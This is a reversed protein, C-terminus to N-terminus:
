PRAPSPVQKNALSGDSLSPCRKKHILEDFVAPANYQIGDHNVYLCAPNTPDDQRPIYIWYDRVTGPFIESRDFVFQLVEGKPADATRALV